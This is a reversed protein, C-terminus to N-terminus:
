VMVGPPVADCSPMMASCVCWLFSLAQKSTSGWQRWLCLLFYIFCLSSRGQFSLIQQLLYVASSSVNGNSCWKGGLKFFPNSIEEEGWNLDGDKNRDRGLIGEKLKLPPGHQNSCKGATKECVAKNHRQASYRWLMKWVRWKSNRKLCENQLSLCSAECCAQMWRWAAFGKLTHKIKVLCEIGTSM